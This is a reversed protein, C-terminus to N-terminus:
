AFVDSLAEGQEHPARMGSKLSLAILGIAVARVVIIAFIAWIALLGFESHALRARVAVVVGIAEFLALLVGALRSYGLVLWAVLMLCLGIDIAVAFAQQPLMFLSIVEPILLGTAIAAAHRPYEALLTRKRLLAGDMALIALMTIWGIPWVVVFFLGKYFNSYTKYREDEGYM